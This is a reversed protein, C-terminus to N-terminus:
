RTQRPSFGAFFFEIQFQCLFNEVLIMVSHFIHLFANEYTRTRKTPPSVFRNEKPLFEDGDTLQLFRRVPFNQTKVPRGAHSFNTPGNSEVPIQDIPTQKSSHPWISRELASDRLEDRNAFRNSRNKKKLIKSKADTSHVVRRLDLPMTSRVDTRHGAFHNLTQLFRLRFIRQNQDILDIFDTSSTKVAIRRSRQELHEIGLLVCVKEIM